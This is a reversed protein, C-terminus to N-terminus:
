ATPVAWDWMLGPHDSLRISLIYDHEQSPLSGREFNVSISEPFVVIREPAFAAEM